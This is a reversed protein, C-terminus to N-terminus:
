YKARTMQLKHWTHASSSLILSAFCPEQQSSMLQKLPSIGLRSDDKIKSESNKLSPSVEVVYILIAQQHESVVTM